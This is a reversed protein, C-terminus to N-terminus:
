KKAAAAAAAAAAEAAAAKAAAAQPRFDTHPEGEANRCLGGRCGIDDLALELARALDDLPAEIQSRKSALNCPLVLPADASPLGADPCQEKFANGRYQEMGEMGSDIAADSPHRAYVAHYTVRAAEAVRRFVPVAGLYASVEILAAHPPMYVVNTLAAGHSAILIGTDAFAAVQQAWTWRGTIALVRVPLGTAECLARVAADNTYARYRERHLLTITRPPYAPWARAAPVGAAAYAARRWAHADGAGTFLRSKEGLVVARAACLWHESSVNLGAPSADRPLVTRAGPALLALTERPWSPLAAATFNSEIVFQTTTLVVSGVPPLFGGAPAGGVRYAYPGAGAGGAGAPWGAAATTSNARRAAWLGFTAMAFHWIHTWAGVPVAAFYAAGEAAPLWTV